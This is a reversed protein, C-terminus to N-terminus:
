SSFFSWNKLKQAASRFPVIDQLVSPPIETRGFRRGTGRHDLGVSGLEEAGGLGWGGQELGGVLGRGPGDGRLSGRGGVSPRVSIGGETRCSM